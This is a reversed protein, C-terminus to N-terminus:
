VDPTSRSSSLADIPYGGRYAAELLELDRDVRARAPASTLAEIEDLDARLALLQEVRERTAQSLSRGERTRMAIHERLHTVTAGLEGSVLALRVSLPPDSVLGEASDADTASVSDGEAAQQLMEARKGSGRKGLRAAREITAELTEIGDVMGQELADEANVVRGEGYGKRVTGERVGRGRAVDRVFMAYFADVDHQIAARAEDGLPEHPNAEVKYKGQYIYTTKLGEREDFASHDVHATLVGVSGVVGSPTVYVQEAQAGLWYAASAAMTNASALIPKQSRAARMEAALEPIGDVQGGPSDIDLVIADIDDDALAGRITDRLREVSTGGSMQSMLNARPMLTGYVPIVAVRRTQGGGSRPGQSAAAVELRAVIEDQTLRGGSARLQVLEVIAQLTSPLIAWPRELVARVVHPYLTTETTM